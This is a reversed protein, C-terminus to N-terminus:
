LPKFFKIKKKRLTFFEGGRGGGGALFTRSVAGEILLLFCFQATLTSSVLDGLCHLAEGWGMGMGPM